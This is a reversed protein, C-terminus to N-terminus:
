PLYNLIDEAGLIRFLPRREGEICAVCSYGDLPWEWFRGNVPDEAVSLERLERLGDRKILCEKRSWLRWFCAEPEAASAVLHQEVPSFFHKAIGWEDARCLEVDVGIPADSFGAMAWRGAHSLSIYGGGGQVVPKGSGDFILRAPDLGHCHMLAAALAGVGLRLLRDEQRECAAVKERRVTDMREMVASFVEYSRLACCDLLWIETKDALVSNVRNM